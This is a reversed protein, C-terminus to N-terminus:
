EDKKGKKFIIKFNRYGERDYEVHAPGIMGASVTFQDGKVKEANGILTLIEAKIADKTLTAQKIQASIDRYQMALHTIQDNAALVKNPEAYGYLRAIVEADREFNPQPECNADISAWFETAKKIIAKHIEPDADRELVYVQNGGVLAGIYAKDVGAVLMQHQVQLEIHLPAEIDGGEILWGDRFQLADVNKIELLPGDDLKFDFSSGIRLEPVRMYDKFLKVQWGRDSAIGTAIATELRSGWKMRESEQIEAVDNGKHRHWVEFRTAYPSADFLASIETSTLDQARLELWHLKDKPTITQRTM